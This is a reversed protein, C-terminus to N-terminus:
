ILLDRYEGVKAIKALTKLSNEQDEASAAACCDSLVFVNYDRDHADRAASQVVLDTAVGCLYFDKIGTEKLYSDLNTKYFPSIRHKVVQLDEERVDLSEHFETAWTGLKLAQFQDAKGFLPSNKPQEQYDESFGVKVYVIEMGKNRALSVAEAVNSLTNNEEAYAAYGKSKFKGEPHIIENIYDM